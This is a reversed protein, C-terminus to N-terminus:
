YRARRLKEAQRLTIEVLHPGEVRRFGSRSPALRALSSLAPLRLAFARPAHPESLAPLRLADRAQDVATKAPTKCLTPTRWTSRSSILLRARSTSAASM